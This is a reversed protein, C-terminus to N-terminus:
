LAPTDFCAQMKRFFTHIHACVGEATPQCQRCMEMDVAALNFAGNGLLEQADMTAMMFHAVFERSQLRGHDRKRWTAFKLSIMLLYRTSVWYEDDGTALAYEQHQRAAARIATISAGRHESLIGLHFEDGWADWTPLMQKYRGGCTTDKTTGIVYGHSELFRPMNWKLTQGDEARRALLDFACEGGSAPSYHRHLRWCQKSM